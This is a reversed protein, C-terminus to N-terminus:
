SCRIQKRHSNHIPYNTFIALIKCANIMGQFFSEPNGCFSLEMYRYILKYFLSIFSESFHLLLFLIPFCSRFSRHRTSLNLMTRKRRNPLRYIFGIQLNRNVMKSFKNFITFFYPSHCFGQFHPQWLAAGCLTHPRYIKFNSKKSLM